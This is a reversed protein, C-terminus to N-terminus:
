IFPNRGLARRERLPQVYLLTEAFGGEAPFGGAGQDYTLMRYVGGKM